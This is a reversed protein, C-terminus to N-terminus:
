LSTAEYWRQPIIRARGLEKWTMPYM